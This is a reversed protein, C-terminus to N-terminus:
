PLGRRAVEDRLYSLVERVHCSRRETAIKVWKLVQWIQVVPMNESSLALTTGCACNALSLNGSSEAPTWDDFEVDYSIPLGIHKTNLLYDRYAAFVRECNPCQKPFLGEIYGHVLQVCEADTLIPIDEPM